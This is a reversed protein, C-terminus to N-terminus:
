HCSPIITVNDDTALSKNPFPPLFNPYASVRCTIRLM